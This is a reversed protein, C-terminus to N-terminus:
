YRRLKKLEAYPDYQSQRAQYQPQEVPVREDEQPEMMNQAINRALAKKWAAGSAAPTSVGGATISELGGGATTVPAAGATAGGALLPYGALTAAGLGLATNKARNLRNLNKEGIAEDLKGIGSRGSKLFKLTGVDGKLLDKFFGM